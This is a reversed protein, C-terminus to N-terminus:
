LCDRPGRKLGGWFWSTAIKPFHHLKEALTPLFDLKASKECKKGCLPRRRQKVKVFKGGEETEGGGVDNRLIKGKEDDGQQLQCNIFKGQIYVKKMNRYLYWEVECTNEKM